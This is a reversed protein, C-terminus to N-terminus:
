VRVCDGRCLWLFICAYPRVSEWGRWSVPPAAVVVGGGSFFLFFFGVGALPAPAAGRGVGAAGADGWTSAGGPVGDLCAMVRPLLLELDCVYVFSFVCSFLFVAAFAAGGRQGVM